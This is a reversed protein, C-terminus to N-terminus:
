PVLRRLRVPTGRARSYVNEWQARLEATAAHPRPGGSSAGPSYPEAHSLLLASCQDAHSQRDCEIAVAIGVLVGVLLFVVV